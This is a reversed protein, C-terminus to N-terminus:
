GGKRLVDILLVLMQDQKQDLKALNTDLKQDLKALMADVEKQRKECLREHEARSLTNFSRATIWTGWTILLGAIGYVIKALWAESM